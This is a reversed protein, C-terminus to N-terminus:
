GAVLAALVESALLSPNVPKAIVRTVGLKAFAASTLQSPVKDDIASLIVVPMEPRLSRAAKIVEFGDHDPMIIDTLVLDFKQVYLIGIAETAGACLTLDHCERTLIARILNRTVPDDDVVLLKAM